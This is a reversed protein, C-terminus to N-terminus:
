IALLTVVTGNIRVKVRVSSASDAQGTAIVNTGECYFSPITHGAADDSSYFIVSDTLGNDPATGNIISLTNTSGTEPAAIGGILLSGDLRVPTTGDCWIQYSNTITAPGAGGGTPADAIYLSSATDITVASADSMTIQGIRIGAPGVSTVQTTGTVTMTHAPVDIAGYIQGASTPGINANAGIQACFANTMTCNTSAQPAGTIVFTIGTTVTSAAVFSYRPARIIFDRQLTLAGTSWQRDGNRIDFEVQTAETSATMTTCDANLLDFIKPVGSTQPAQGVKVTNGGSDITLVTTTNDEARFIDVALTGNSCLLAASSNVVPASSVSDTKFYGAVYIGGTNVNRAAAFIGINIADNKNATAASWTGYNMDGHGALTMLGINHGTTVARSFGGIGRNGGPRYSYVVTDGTYSTDTGAVQSDFFLAETFYAGTYGAKFDLAMGIRNLASTGSTTIDLWLAAGSYDSSSAPSYDATYTIKQKYGNIHVIGDNLRTSGVGDGGQLILNAGTVNTVASSYASQPSLTLTVPVTDAALTTGATISANSSSTTISLSTLGGAAVGITDSGIRYFGTDTDSSFSISPSAATGNSFLAISNFNVQGNLNTTGSVGLGSLISVTGTFSTDGTVTPVTLTTAVLSQATLTRSGLNVNSTAGTYPVYGTIATGAGIEQLAEEVTSSTYYSGADTIVMSGAHNIHPDQVRIHDDM